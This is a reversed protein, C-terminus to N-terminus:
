HEFREAFSSESPFFNNSKWTNRNFILSNSLIICIDINNGSGIDNFIGALIAEKILILASDLDLNCNYSNELISMASLCGSGMSIFPLSESSGHPHISYLQSGFIDFGGLILAASINGTHKYLFDKCISLSTLVKSERGTSLRQLELHYFLLKSINEADASTGAGMCCINPALYHIKQCNTDCSVKGNTARTDAGLILGKKFILGAITTGTKKIKMDLLKRYNIIQSKRINKFGFLTTIQYDDDYYIIGM